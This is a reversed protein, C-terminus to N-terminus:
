RRGLSSDRDYGLGFWFAFAAGLVILIQSMPNLQHVHALFFPLSADKAFPAFRWETFLGLLLGLVACMIALALSRRNSLAGCGLGLLAGPLVIAYLGQRAVWFFLFHGVVGGIVSGTIGLAIELPRLGGRGAPGTLTSGPRVHHPEM